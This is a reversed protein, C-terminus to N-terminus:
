LYVIGTANEQIVEPELEYIQRCGPSIYPFAMSGDPRLLFEYLMGPVNKALKQM